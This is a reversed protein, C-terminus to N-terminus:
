VSDDRSWSDEVDKTRKRLEQRRLFIWHFVPYSILIAAFAKSFVLTVEPMYSLLSSNSFSFYGLEICILLAM